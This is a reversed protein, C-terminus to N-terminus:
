FFSSGKGEPDFPIDFSHVSYVAAFGPVIKNEKIFIHM